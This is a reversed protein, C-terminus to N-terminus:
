RQAMGAAAPALRQQREELTAEGKAPVRVIWLRDYTDLSWYPIPGKVGLGRAVKKMLDHHWCVIVTHGRHNRLIEEALAGSAERSRVSPKLGLKASLPALTQQTRILDSTYLAEPRFAELLPVLLEARRLGAEALSSDHDLISQREAHRLLVVTTDQAGLAGAVLLIGLLIGSRLCSLSM